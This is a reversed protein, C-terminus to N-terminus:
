AGDIRVPEPVLHLDPRWAEMRAIADRYRELIVKRRLKLTPTLEGAQITFPRALLAIRQVREHRAVDRLLEDLGKKVFAVIEPRNVLDERSQFALGIQRAHDELRGFDPVLLAGLWSRGEGIM